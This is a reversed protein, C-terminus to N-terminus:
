KEPPLLKKLLQCEKKEMIEAEDDEIHDYGLLHLVGHIVLHAAHAKFTKFLVPSEKQVDDYSLIVDGLLFFDSPMMDDDLDAFSLVNTSKDKGRYTLNLQHMEKADTLVLGMLVPIKKKVRMATLTDEAMRVLFSSMDKKWRKDNVTLSVQYKTVNQKPKM